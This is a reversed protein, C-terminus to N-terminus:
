WKPHTWHSTVVVVKRTMVTMMMIAIMKKTMTMKKHGVYNIQTKCVLLRVNDSLWSFSPGHTQRMVM